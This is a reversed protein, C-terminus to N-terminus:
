NSTVNQPVPRADVTIEIREKGKGINKRKLRLDGVEDTHKIHTGGCAVRAFGEIEWYRRENDRDSFASVIPYNANIINHAKETLMPFASAINNEWLFDIRAKSEAIHAGIKIIGPLNQTALELVIEAAFHLRMLKYRREADIKITVTDGTQLTHDDPLIYQLDTGQKLVDKVEFGGITGTDREQGGAFPYFITENMKVQNSDVGSIITDLTTQYPAEWFVKRTM